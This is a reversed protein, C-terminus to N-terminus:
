VNWDIIDRHRPAPCPRLCFCLGTKQCCVGGQAGCGPSVDAFVLEYCAAREAKSVFM